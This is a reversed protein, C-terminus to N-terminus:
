KPIVWGKPTKIFQVVNSIDSENNNWGLASVAVYCNDWDAPIDNAFINFSIGGGKINNVMMRPQKGLVAPTNSFYVVMSKISATTDALQATIKLFPNAAYQPENEGANVIAPKAPAVSDIWKMPPIIAPFKYYRTRLSDNWGNANSEFTKSSFYISGQVNDYQRLLDIQDPIQHKNRWAANTGARYIGHGIYLHKGYTHTSWWDLLTEYDCLKHDIEWYLQPTVYDIWGKKLWLLIDAYLDDYNSLGARTESGEPDKSKNRWVGFPSIGFKVEPNEERIAQHLRVIISDCNSRRWDAKNLGAPNYKRFSANDPFEKGDIPYPYFYDDMHVADIEYRTVLDRVIGEVHDIVEPRGPDFYKITGYTIFWDPHQRTIHDQAVSSKGVHFVARYPNLWAHFEMGRQHTEEIMFALPDYLPAPAQGQRGSLYESWPEFGSPYFADAAPRVQLVIANMGNRQHMDLIRIFEAKQQAVSLGKRSPWDINEVTAIWVGRFEYKPSYQAFGTVINMALLVCILISKHKM